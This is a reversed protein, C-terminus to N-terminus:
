ADRTVRRRRLLALGGLALLGLTAPEPIIDPQVARISVNDIWTHSDGNNVDTFFNLRYSGTVTPTFLTSKTEWAGDNGIATTDDFLAITDPGTVTVDLIPNGGEGWMDFSLVYDTGGTLPIGDQWLTDAGGIDLRADIRYAFDGDSFEADGSDTVYWVRNDKDWHTTVDANGWTSGAYNHTGLESGQGNGLTANTNVEFSGDTVLNPGLAIQNLRVDDIWAHANDNQPDDASFSIRYAGTAPATFIALKTEAAGDTGLTASNDLVKLTAPGTLAVDVRPTGAEGWMEFSLAYTTAATLPIGDQHLTNVGEFPHADLRYAFDGDPFQAGGLDTMYWTRTGSKDWHTLVDADGWTSGAYRTDGGLESGQGNGPTGNTNVEFSGDKILNAPLEVLNVDDIWAHHNGNSPDDASFNIRYSGTAPATFHTTIKEAFGNNGVTGRDDLVKMTAPGTFEVDIRPSASEGWMDFSLEYRKGGTLSIGDQHLTNVGEAPHADVRCAFDGDPFVSAGQDTMYWTRSGSKDWHTLVDANGWTSGAYRSAGLESGQSNGPTSNTNVEFSGDTVINAQVNGGALAMLGAAVWLTITRM